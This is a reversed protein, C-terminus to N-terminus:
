FNFYILPELHHLIGEMLLLEVYLFHFASAAVEACEQDKINVKEEADEMALGHLELQLYKCHVTPTWLSEPAALTRGYPSKPQWRFMAYQEEQCGAQHSFKSQERYIM